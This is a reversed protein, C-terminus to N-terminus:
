ENEDFEILINFGMTAGEKLLSRIRQLSSVFSVFPSDLARSSAPDLQMWDANCHPCQAPIRSSGDPRLSLRTDCDRCELCIAKIDDLGVLIKRKITMKFSQKKQLTGAAM